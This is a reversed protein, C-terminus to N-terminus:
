VNFIDAKYRKLNEPNTFWERTRDLGARLGERGGFDPTWHILENAKDNNSLLRNVESKAALLIVVIEVYGEQSARMLATTGKSNTFDAIGGHRLLLQVANLHGFHSAQILATSGTSNMANVSAGADVLMQIIDTDGKHSAASIPTVGKQNPANPNIGAALLGYM